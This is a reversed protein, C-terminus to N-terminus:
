VTIMQEAAIIREGLWKAVPQSVANGAGMYAFKRKSLRAFIGDRLCDPCSGDFCLMNEQNKEKIERHTKKNFLGGEMRRSSPYLYNWLEMGGTDMRGILFWRARQQPLWHKSDVIRAACGYGIRQLAQSAQIIIPKGGKPQEVLVWKPKIVQIFRLMSPWLSALTRQRSLSACSSTHICPPGGSIIDPREYKNPNETQIDQGYLIDLTWITSIGIQKFGRSIGGFGNFLSGHTM